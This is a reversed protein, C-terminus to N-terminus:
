RAGQSGPGPRAPSRPAAPPQRGAALPLLRPSPARLLAPPLLSLPNLYQDARRLGWHLCGTACHSGIAETRGLLQGATVHDGRRVSPRVPEHTLRLPPVGTGTLEVTIVSRTAVRGAFAVRGAAM